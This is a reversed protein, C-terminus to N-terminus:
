EKSSNKKFFSMLSNKTRPLPLRDTPASMKFPDEVEPIELVETFDSPREQKKLRLIIRTLVRLAEQATPPRDDPKKALLWYLWECLEADVGEVLEEVRTPPVFLHANVLDLPDRLTPWPIHGTLSHYFVCGMSYIDARTDFPHQNLQEPSIYFISGFTEEDPNVQRAAEEALKAVGFDLIKVVFETHPYLHLMLNAPKIDLHLLGKRHAAGLGELAQCAINLFVDVPLPGKGIVDAISPGDVFELIFFFGKQDIGLDIIRIINRHKLGSLIKAERQTQEIVSTPVTIDDKLRKIAVPVQTGQDRCLYVEGLGGTGLLSLVEYRSAIIDGLEQLAM